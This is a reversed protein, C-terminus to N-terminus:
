VREVQLYLLGHDSYDRIWQDQKAVTTQKPWGLVTVDAGGKPKFSLTTSAVVHDLNSPPISSGSGNSWTAPADKSLPRMKVRKAEKALKQIEVDAAISRDFPYKMGMTNLDGVFLYHAKGAGGAAKDLVRRFQCARVIMDDRLGMGRPDAGSATHLFLVTYNKSAITLTLLAGPRMHTTGSRFEVKQTFFATFTSRVGVLIEQTQPGETIHFSYGPMQTTLATFVEKGEVEYLAFVDPKRARLFGVVRPVRVPDNKFHEVNWSALTFAKTM